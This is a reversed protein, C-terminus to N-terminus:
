KILCKQLNILGCVINVINDLKSIYSRDICSHLKLIHYERIRRIVREIHIRLSAIKKAELVQEKSLQTDACVSPPRVLTCKKRALLGSTFKFGRDAMVDMGESLCNLFGSDEVIITDSARGGYGRSIFNILGDPTTSM